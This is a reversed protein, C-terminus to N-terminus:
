NGGKTMNAFVTRHAMGSYNLIKNEYSVMEGVLEVTVVVEGLISDHIVVKDGNRMEIEEM